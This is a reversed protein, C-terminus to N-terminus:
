RWQCVCVRFRQGVVAKGVCRGGVLILGAGAVAILIHWPLPAGYWNNPAVAPTNATVVTGSNSPMNRFRETYHALSGASNEHNGISTMYPIYAALQEINAMFQDGLGGNDDEFNYAFDGTHTIHTATGVESILGATQSAHACTAADCVPSQGTCKSCLSFADTAGM